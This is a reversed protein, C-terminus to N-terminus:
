AYTYTDGDEFVKFLNPQLDKILYPLVMETVARAVDVPVANGAQKKTQAESVVIRFSDPFGQLRLMERPTLRREGNVLLYNHSANARLACSFPYSSINGAKNEHWISPYHKSKHTKQRKEYIMQSAYYKKDVEKELIETLPKMEKKYNAWMFYAPKNLGVIFVRERKQPLGYDLANLVRYDAYYGLRKLVTLIRKLTQGRNHGVLRKVNELVFANPRKAEM